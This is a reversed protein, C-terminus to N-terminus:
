ITWGRTEAGFQTETVGEMQNCSIEAESLLGWEVEFFIFMLVEMHFQKSQPFSAM